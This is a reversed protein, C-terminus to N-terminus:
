SLAESWRGWRMGMVSFAKFVQVNFSTHYHFVHSHKGLTSLLDAAVIYHAGNSRVLCYELNENYCVARNGVQGLFVTFVNRLEYNAGEGHELGHHDM